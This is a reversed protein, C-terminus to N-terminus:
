NMTKQLESLLLAIELALGAGHTQRYMNVRQLVQPNYLLNQEERTLEEINPFAGGDMVDKIFEPISHTPTEPQAPAIRSEANLKKAYAKVKEAIEATKCYICQNPRYM